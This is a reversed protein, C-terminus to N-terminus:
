VRELGEDYITIDPGDIFWLDPSSGNKVLHVSGIFYDFCNMKRYDEIPKTIGPIYDIELGLLINPYSKITKIYEDLREEKLAFNNEFPVPSHDSFGLTHFGQRIAEEIYEEPPSSGDSFHTHTHLNFLM